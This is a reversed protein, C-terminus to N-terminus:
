YNYCHSPIFVIRYDFIICPAICFSHLVFTLNIAIADEFQIQITLRIYQLPHVTNMAAADSCFVQSRRFRMQPEAPPSTLYTGHSISHFVSHILITQLIWQVTTVINVIPPLQIIKPGATNYQLSGYTSDALFYLTPAM